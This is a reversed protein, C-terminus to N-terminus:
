IDFKKEFYYRNGDPTDGGWTFGHQKFLTVALDGDKPPTYPNLVIALGKVHAERLPESAFHFCFTSNNSANTDETLYKYNSIAVPMMTDVNYKAEYLARFIALLDNAISKNCVIEGTKLHGMSMECYVLSRVTMLDSKSIQPGDKPRSGEYEVWYYDQVPLITFCNEYGFEKIAEESTAANVVWNKLNNLYMENVEKDIKDLEECSAFVLCGLFVIAFLRIIKM